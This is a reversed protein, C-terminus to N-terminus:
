ENLFNLDSHVFLSAHPPIDDTGEVSGMATRALAHAVKNAMRRVLSLSFDELTSICHKIDSTITGISSLDPGHQKLKHFLNACDGELVIRKWARRVGLQIAERAALAEVTEPSAKLHFRKSLWGVCIGTSDRAIIGIRVDSNETFTAGDYNLKIYGTEPTQWRSPARSILTVEINRSHRLYEDLYSKAAKVVQKARNNISEAARRNRTWWLMWCITLFLSFDYKDLEKSIRLMWELTNEHWASVIEWRINSICWCLRAFPCKLLVHEMDEQQEGCHPCCSVSYGLRKELNKGTPIANLCAKWAFMQIKSPIVTNWIFNWNCDTQNSSPGAQPEEEIEKAIFYASGISFLGNDTHHWVWKDIQGFRSTPIGLIADSDM